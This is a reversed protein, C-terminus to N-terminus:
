VGQVYRVSGLISAKLEPKVADISVLDIKQGLLDELYFKLDMYNDFTKQGKGFEVIIDIDSTETQEERVFSGFLGIKQVGYENINRMSEAIKALVSSTSLM